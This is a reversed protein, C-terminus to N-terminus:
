STVWTKLAALKKALDSDPITELQKAVIEGLAEGYTINKFWSKTHASTGIARRLQSEDLDASIWNRILPEAFSGTRLGLNGAITDLRSQQNDPAIATDLIEQVAELPLDLCVRTETNVDGAWQIVPIGAQEVEDKSPTIPADSDVLLLVDYGLSKLKKAVGPAKSCGGGDVAVAGYYAFGIGNNNQAWVRDLARLVGVETKGECVILKHALFAEPVTRVLSQLDSDLQIIKTTGDTARVLHIDTVCSEVIPITSHTTFITQGNTAGVEAAAPRVTRVLQRLRHPELGHEIEDILLVAGQKTLEKQLGLVVLKRSGLGSQRLPINGDHLALGGVGVSISHLDLAPRFEQRPKVGLRGVVEQIRESASHLEPLTDQAVAQSATRSAKALIESLSGMDGTFKSLSTGRSWSLERDVYSGIRSVGLLERHRSSIRVGDPTRENIVMWEPELSATVRLRIVLVAEDDPGPEDVLGSQKNWGQLHEGFKDLGILSEPLQGVVVTIEIPESTDGQYFDTDSFTLNWRSSLTYDIADLLTTKTSDNPGILCVTPSNVKWQLHCIGRFRSITVQRIQMQGELYHKYVLV